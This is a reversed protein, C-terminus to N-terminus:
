GICFSIEEGVSPYNTYKEEDQELQKEVDLYPSILEMFIEIKEETTKEGKEIKEIIKKNNYYSIVM